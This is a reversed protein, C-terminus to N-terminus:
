VIRSGPSNKLEICFSCVEMSWADYTVCSLDVMHRSCHTGMNENTVISQSLSQLGWGIAWVSTEIKGRLM